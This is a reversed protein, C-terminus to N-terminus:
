GSHRERQRKYVDLHTYSVAKPNRVNLHRPVTVQTVAAVPVPVDIASLRRLQRDATIVAPAGDRGATAPAVVVGGGPSRGAPGWLM